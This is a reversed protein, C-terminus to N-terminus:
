KKKELLNNLKKIEKEANKLKNELYELRYENIKLFNM